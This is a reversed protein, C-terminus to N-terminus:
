KKRKWDPKFIPVADTVEVQRLKRKSALLITTATIGPLLMSPLLSLGPIYSLQLWKEGDAFYLAFSSILFALSIETSFLGGSVCLVKSYYNDDGSLARGFHIWFLTSTIMFLVYMLKQPNKSILFNNLYFEILQGLQSIVIAMAIVCQVSSLKKASAMIVGGTVHAICGLLVFFSFLDIGQAFENVVQVAQLSGAVIMVVGILTLGGTSISDEGYMRPNDVDKKTVLFLVVAVVVMVTYLIINYINGSLSYLGNLDATYDIGNFVVFVRLVTLVVFSIAAVIFSKANCLINTTLETM